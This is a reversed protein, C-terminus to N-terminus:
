EFLNEEIKLVVVSADDSIKRHRSYSMIADSLQSPSHTAIRTRIFEFLEPCEERGETVGDSVMVIVDGPLVTSTNKAMDLEKLIGIPMTRAGLKFLSGDRFVYTPAAGSKYFEAYGTDLRIRCLDVTAACERTSRKNRARLFTNLLSVTNKTPVSVCLMKNLFGACLESTVAADRGSGMGDCIFAYIEAEGRCLIGYSDGCHEPEAPSAMRRGSYTIKLAPKREFVVHTRKGIDFVDRRVLRTDLFDSFANAIGDALRELRQADMCSLMIKDNSDGFMSVRADLLEYKEKAIKELEHSVAFDSNCTSDIGTMIDALYESIAELIAGGTDMEDCCVIDALDYTGKGKKAGRTRSQKEKVSVGEDGIEFSLSSAVFGRKEHVGVDDTEIKESLEHLVSCLEKVSRGLENLRTAAIDYAHADTSKPIDMDSPMNDKTKVPRTIFLRDIAVFTVSAVLLAPLLSSISSIGSTYIGWAMGILLTSFSALTLSIERLLGFSVAGFAFIPAYIVSVCLGCAVGMLTGEAIGNIRTATLTAFIAFLVSLSVGFLTMGGLTWTCAACASVIATSRWIKQGRLSLADRKDSLIPLASWLLTLIAAALMSILMSILHYYLFGGSIVEYAGLVFAGGAATTAKLSIHEEFVAYRKRSVAFTLLRLALTFSYSALLLLINDSFLTSIALGIFVSPVCYSAACLLAFGFPMAGFPLVGVGSLVGAAIAVLQVFFKKSIESFGVERKLATTKVDM